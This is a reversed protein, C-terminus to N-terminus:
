DSIGLVEKAKRVASIADEAFGDAGIEDAWAVSTVAGGVLVKVGNRLDAKHLAEVVDKQVQTSTSLLASLGIIDPKEQKVYEVISSTPVDAGLDTVTFGNLRLMMGVLSKGITHIDGAVTAIAVKGLTKLNLSAQRTTLIDMVAQMVQGAMVLDCIFLDGREFGIGVEDLGPKFGMNIIEHPDSGAQLAQHVLEKALEENGEVVCRAMSQLISEMTM